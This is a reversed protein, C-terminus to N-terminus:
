LAVGEMKIGGWDSFNRQERCKVGGEDGTQQQRQAAPTIYHRHTFSHRTQTGWLTKGCLAPLFPGCLGSDWGVRRKERVRKVGVVDITSPRLLVVNNRENVWGLVCLFPHYYCLSTPPPLVHNQTKEGWISMRDPEELAHSGCAVSRKRCRRRKDGGRWKKELIFCQVMERVTKKEQPSLFQWVYWALIQKYSCDVFAHLFQGWSHFTSQLENLTLLWTQFYQTMPSYQQTQHM